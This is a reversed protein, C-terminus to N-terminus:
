QMHNDYAAVHVKEFYKWLLNKDLIEFIKGKKQFIAHMSKSGLIARSYVGFQFYEIEVSILDETFVRQFKFLCHHTTIIQGASFFIIFTIFSYILKKFSEKHRFKIIIDIHLSFSWHQMWIYKPVMQITIPRQFFHMWFLEQLVKEM